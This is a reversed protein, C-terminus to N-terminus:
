ANEDTRRLVCVSKRKMKKRERPVPSTNIIFNHVLIILSTLLRDDSSKFIHKKKVGFTRRSVSDHINKQLGDCIGDQVAPSSSYM